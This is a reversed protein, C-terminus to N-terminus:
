PSRASSRSRASATLSETATCCTTSGSPPQKRTYPKQWSDWPYLTHTKGAVFGWNYAAVNDGQGIPLSATSPASRQPPGHVRHVPHPRGISRCSRSASSSREPRTTATSASSTPSSSSSRRSAPDAQESSSWDGGHWVGSTLPQTPKQRAVWAFVQPLLTSRSSTSTEAARLQRLQQRQHQGARELHGLGARARGQSAASSARVYGELRADSAPRRASDAGPARCGAPTTCAPSRRVSSASSPTPTGARQRVARVDASATGPRRDALFQDMRRKFGETDQEWLLDHLFVRMSNFGLDQPGAWSATSADALDFTDAQWMELQNIATAPIFNCGVLWPQKEYWANAEAQPWREGDASQALAQLPAGVALVAGAPADALKHM